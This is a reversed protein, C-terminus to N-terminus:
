SAFAARGATAVLWFLEEIAADGIAICGPRAPVGAKALAARM